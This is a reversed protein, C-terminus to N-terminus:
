GLVGVRAPDINWDKAHARVLRIARNVDEMMAPHHYKPGLRYKLVVGTVGISNLWQAIPKGEHPALHAYGGGPCVVVVTGNAKAPDPRFLTLTPIEADESGLAGPAQNDWLRLVQDPTRDPMPSSLASPQTSSASNSHPPSALTTAEPKNTSSCSVSFVVSLLLASAVRPSMHKRGSPQM